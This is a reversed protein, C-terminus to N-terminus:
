RVWEGSERVTGGPAAAVGAQDIVGVSLRRRKAADGPLMSRAATAPHHTTVCGAADRESSGQAQRRRRSLRRATSVVVASPDAIRRHHNKVHHDSPIPTAPRANIRRSGGGKLHVLDLYYAADASFAFFRRM